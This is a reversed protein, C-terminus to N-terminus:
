YRAVHKRAVHLTSVHVHPRAVHKRLSASEYYEPSIQPPPGMRQIPGSGQLTTPEPWKPAKLIWDPAPM